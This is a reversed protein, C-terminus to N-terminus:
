RIYELLFQLTKECAQQKVRLRPGAFIFKRCVTSKKDAVAIYVLGTPKEKTGGSPGAIGTVAVAYNSKFVRRCGEAMEKAAQASVAGYKALTNKKVGLLKAKAANSYAIVGGTFYDSSGPVNTIEHGILGGTCSEAVSLAAQRKCLFVGIKKASNKNM